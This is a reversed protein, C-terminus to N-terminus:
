WGDSGSVMVAALMSSRNMDIDSGLRVNCYDPSEPPHALIVQAIDQTSSNASAQYMGASVLMLLWACAAFAVRQMVLPQVLIEWFAPRRAAEIRHLVRTHFGPSPGLCTEQDLDLSEFLKSIGVMKAIEASAAADAELRRRFERRAAEGLQNSLYGELNAILFKDM